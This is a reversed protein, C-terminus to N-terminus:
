LPNYEDFDTMVEEIEIRGVDEEVFTLMLADAVDPSRYGEKRMMEKPMIQLKGRLNPKFRINLLENWKKHQVLEGGRRLWDKIRYFSEARRNLFRESDDAQDGVNVGNVYEGAIALEQAVNAGVGFNDIYVNADIIGYYEMLTLTKQAITKASSIKEELVVEAKFKDRLVWATSDRGQGSCDIGLRLQGVYKDNNTIHLDTDKFLPAYGKDDIADEKPFEGQVRVRYEDSDKGYKEIIRDVYTNDVLPSDESDFHLTQWADKDSNHSDYFYGVLRTPNSCMIVLINEGTLAGEATEFIKDPVGSAEDVIMMVHEAHIGALAEPNEKSATRARAFWSDPKEAIRVHTNTHEYLKKIQEPMRNIWISVEKWLVDTMQPATPATCAIQSDYFSFLYWLILWSLTTSKGTGHGSKVSVRPPADGRLAEEVADLLSQQHVTLHQGKIFKEGDEVKRIGWMDKIFISPSKQYLKLIEKDTMYKYYALNQKFM